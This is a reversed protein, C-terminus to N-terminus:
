GWILGKNKREALFDIADAYRDGKQIEAAVKAEREYMAAQQSESLAQPAGTTVKTTGALLSGPVPQHNAQRNVYDVYKQIRQDVASEKVVVGASDGLGDRGVARRAGSGAISARNRGSNDVVVTDSYSSASSAANRRALEQARSLVKEPSLGTLSVVADLLNLLEQNEGLLNDQLGQGEEINDVVYDLYDSVALFLGNVIDKADEASAEAALVAEQLNAITECLVSAARSSAAAEVLEVLENKVGDPLHQGLELMRERIDIDDM